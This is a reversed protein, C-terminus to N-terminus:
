DVRNRIGNSDDLDLSFCILRLNISGHIDLLILRMRQQQCNKKNEKGGLKKWKM